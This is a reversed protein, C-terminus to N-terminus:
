GVMNGFDRESLFGLLHMEQREERTGEYERRTFGVRNELVTNLLLVSSERDAADFYYMGNPSMQFKVKIDLLVVRFFIGGERDFVVRFKKTARSMLLINAIGTPEYWVARYRPLDGVRNLINSSSNCHVHIKEKGQVM